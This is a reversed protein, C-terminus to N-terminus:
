EVVHRYGAGYLAIGMADSEDPLLKTRLPWFEPWIEKCIVNRVAIKSKFSKEKREVKTFFSNKVTIAAVEEWPLNRNQLNLLQCLSVAV